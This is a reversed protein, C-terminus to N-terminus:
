YHTLNAISASYLGPPDSCSASNTNFIKQRVDANVFIIFLPFQSYQMISLQLALAFIKKDTHNQIYGYGHHLGDLFTKADLEVATSCYSENGNTFNM